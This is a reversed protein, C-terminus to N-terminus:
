DIVNDVTIWVLDLPSHGNVAMITEVSSSEENACVEHFSTVIVHSSSDLFESERSRWSDLMRM